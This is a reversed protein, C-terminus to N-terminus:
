GKEMHKTLVVIEQLLFDAMKNIFCELEPTKKAYEDCIVPCGDPSGDDILLLEFDTFTQALVSDICQRIYCEVKYVPIIVSVTVKNKM